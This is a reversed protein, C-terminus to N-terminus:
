PQPLDPYRWVWDGKDLDVFGRDTLSVIGGDDTENWGVSYLIFQGDGTVRYHLPQGGIPDRPLKAIFQPALADLTAPYKGHALRYRELAGATRALNVTAQAFAFRRPCNGLAPLFMRCLITYPTRRMTRLSEDAEKVLPPSITQQRADAIPVFQELIFKSSQLENQYVWGSPILYALLDPLHVRNNEGFEGLTRWRAPHRRLYDM